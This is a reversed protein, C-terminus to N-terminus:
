AIPPAATAAYAAPRYASALATRNPTNAPKDLVDAENFAPTRPLPEESFADTHRPAPRIPGFGSAFLEYHPPTPAISLFFPQNSAAAEDITEEARGALVDTQYNRATNGYTVLTGNDNITYNYMMYTSNDVLGQWHTWGPPVETPNDIGYRNLYKGIHSTFYGAQQLWLPLTNTNDLKPYGGNPPANGLVGHNHPYQGTLFTARSPCCLPFSVYHNSFTTGAGILAKTKPLARMENLGQDDTMIVVINPRASPITQAALTDPTGIGIAGVLMLGGLLLLIPFKWRTNRFLAETPKLTM